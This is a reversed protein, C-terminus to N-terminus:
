FGCDPKLGKARAEEALKKAGPLESKLVKMRSEGSPHTSLFEPPAEGGQVREMNEWLPIAQEPNFGAKAMYELGIVDAESEQKRNFPMLVGFQVGAGLLGIAQANVASGAGAALVQTASSALSQTSVRENAHRAMVHAVEHGIVTALQDQNRAVRFIGEYVGIKNGPLAFANVMNDDFVAVEWGLKEKGPLTGIIRGAVCQIIQQAQIDRSTANQAKIEAFAQEGMQAMESESMYLIQGRGTPSTACGWVAAASALMLILQSALRMANM